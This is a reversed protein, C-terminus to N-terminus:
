HEDIAEAVIPKLVERLRPMGPAGQLNGELNGNLANCLALAIAMSLDRNVEYGELIAYLAGYLAERVERKQKSDLVNKYKLARDEDASRPYKVALIDLTQLDNIGLLEYLLSMAMLEEEMICLSNHWTFLRTGYFSGAEMDLTRIGEM